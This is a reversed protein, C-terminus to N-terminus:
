AVFLKDDSGEVIKNSADASILSAATPVVVPAVLLKGDTGAKLTNGADASILSAPSVSVVAIDKHVLVPFLSGATVASTAAMAIGIPAGMNTSTLTCGGDTPDYYVGAGASIAEDTVMHMVGGDRVITIRDGGVYKEKRSNYIVFGFGTDTADAAVVKPKGTSTALLKVKDGAYLPAASTVTSAVEVEIMEASLGWDALEGRLRKPATQNLDQLFFDTKTIAM